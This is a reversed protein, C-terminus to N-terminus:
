VAEVGPEPIEIYQGAAGAKRRSLAVSKLCLAGMVVYIAGCLILSFGVICEPTEVTPSFLDLTNIGVYAIFLGRFVWLDLLKLRRTLFKWDTETLVIIASFLCLYCRQVIEIYKNGEKEQTIHYVNAGIAAVGLAGSLCHFFTFAILCPDSPCCCCDEMNDDDSDDYSRRFRSRGGVRIARVVGTGDGEAGSFPNGGGGAASIGDLALPGPPSPDKLWSPEEDSVALQTTKMAVRAGTEEALDLGALRHIKRRSIIEGKCVDARWGALTM